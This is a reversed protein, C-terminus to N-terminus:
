IAPIGRGQLPSPAVEVGARCTCSQVVAYVERARAIVSMRRAKGQRKKPTQEQGRVAWVTKGSGHSINAMCACLAYMNM